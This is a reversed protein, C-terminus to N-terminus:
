SGCWVCRKRCFLEKCDQEAVTEHPFPLFCLCRLATSFCCCLGWEQGAGQTPAPPLIHKHGTCREATCLVYKSWPGWSNHISKVTLNFWSFSIVQDASSLLEKIEVRDPKFGGKPCITVVNSVTSLSASHSAQKQPKKKYTHIHEKFSTWKWFDINQFVSSIRNFILKEKFALHQSSEM